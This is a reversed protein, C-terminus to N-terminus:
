KQDSSNRIHTDNNTLDRCDAPGGPDVTADIIIVLLNGPQPLRTSFEPSKRAKPGGRASCKGPSFM